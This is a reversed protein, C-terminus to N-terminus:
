EAFSISAVARATKEDSWSQAAAPAADATDIMTAEGARLTVSGGATAVEVEGDLVLVGYGDDIPGGWVTTGRVGLTGVPTAIAVQSNDGEVAGGVFLFAGTMVRVTLSGDNAGPEYVFEDILLRANEGLTLETGDELIAKLRAAEGTRVLDRFLVPSTRELNRPDANVGYLADAKAQVQEVAGVRVRESASAGATWALLAALAVTLKRAQM